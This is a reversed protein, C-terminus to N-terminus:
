FVKRKNKISEEISSLMDHINFLLIQAECSLRWFLNGLTILGIGTWILTTNLYGYQSKMGIARSVIGRITLAVLGIAYFIKILTPAILKKFLFAVKM